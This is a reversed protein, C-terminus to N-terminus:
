GKVRYHYRSVTRFGLRDYLARAPANSEVVQLWVRVVGLTSAQQLLGHIVAQALGQRRHKPDVALCYLGAWDDVLALRGIAQVPQGSPIVAYLARARNLIQRAAAQAASGGRGDVAWWFDMWSDDPAASINVPGLQEAPEGLNALVDALEAGMVLTPNRLEYGRAALRDDLDGPQAAPGVQFSPAIDHAAYLNEVYDLAKGLDFPARKPLVSNARLTVGANRRVVWGDLETSDAAPWGHNMLTDIRAAAIM